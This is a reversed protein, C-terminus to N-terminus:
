GGLLDVIVWWGVEGGDMWQGIGCANNWVMLVKNLEIPKHWATFFTLYSKQIWVMVPYSHNM